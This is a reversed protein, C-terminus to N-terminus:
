LEQNLYLKEMLTNGHLNVTPLNPWHWTRSFDQADPPFNRGIGRAIAAKGDRAEAVVAWNAQGELIPRLGSRVVDHDDAILIRLKTVVVSAPSRGERRAGVFSYM